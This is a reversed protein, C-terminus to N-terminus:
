VRFGLAQSCMYLSEEAWDAELHDVSSNGGGGINLM